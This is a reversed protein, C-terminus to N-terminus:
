TAQQDPRFLPQFNDTSLFNQILNSITLLQKNVPFIGNVTKQIFFNNMPNNKGIYLVQFTLANILMHANVLHESPAACSLLTYCQKARFLAAYSM